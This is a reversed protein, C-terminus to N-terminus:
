NYIDSEASFDRKQLVLYLAISGAVAANLSDVRGRMPLRLLFDCSKRVMARMGSAENGVVIAISGELRVNQPPLAEPSSDLGVIWIEEKKMERIIQSLNVQCIHLHESAGSSSNVVAPTITATRRLPLFIGHVGVAEATRLLSGLNQPDQVTDLILFFHPEGLSRDPYLIEGKQKYPYSSTELAVGQHNEFQSNLVNKSISELPIQIQKCIYLIEAIRGKEITGLTIRLRFFQRRNATLTEYVSNRGYIWESM